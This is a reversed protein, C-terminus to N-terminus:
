PYKAITVLFTKRFCYFLALVYIKEKNLVVTKNFCCFLSFHQRSYCASTVNKAKTLLLSFVRCFSSLLLTQLLRNQNDFRFLGLTLRSQM